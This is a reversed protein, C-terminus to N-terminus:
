GKMFEKLTVTSGRGQGSFYGDSFHDYGGHCVAGVRKKNFISGLGYGWFAGYARILSQVNYYDGPEGKYRIM